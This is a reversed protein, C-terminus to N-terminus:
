QDNVIQELFQMTALRRKLKGRWEWTAYYDPNIKIMSSYDKMAAAYNGPKQRVFGRYLWARSSKHGAIRIAASLDRAAEPLAEPDARVANGEITRTSWAATLLCVRISPLYSRQEYIMELGIVSSEIMM